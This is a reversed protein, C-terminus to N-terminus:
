QKAGPGQPLHLLCVPRALSLQGSCTGSPLGGTSLPSPTGSPPGLALSQSTGADPAALKWKEQGAPRM